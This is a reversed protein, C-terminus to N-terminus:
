RGAELRAAWIEVDVAETRARRDFYLVAVAVLSFPQLAATAAAEFLSVPIEAALPLAGGLLGLPGQSGALRAAVLRPV